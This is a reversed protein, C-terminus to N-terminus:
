HHSGHNTQENFKSQGSATHRTNKPKPTPSTEPRDKAAWNANVPCNNCGPFFNKKKAPSEPSITFLFSLYYTQIIVSVKLIM